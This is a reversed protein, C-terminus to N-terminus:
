CLNDGGEPAKNSTASQKRLRSIEKEIQENRKADSMSVGSEQKLIEAAAIRLQDRQQQYDHETLDGSTFDAQLDSLKRYIRLREARLKARTVFTESVLRYRKSGLFPYAIVIVSIVALLTGLLIQM